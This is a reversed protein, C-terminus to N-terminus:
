NIPGCGLWLGPLLQWHRLRSRRHEPPPRSSILQHRTKLPQSTPCLLSPILSLVFCTGSRRRTLLSGDLLPLRIYDPLQLSRQAANAQHASLIQHHQKCHSRTYDITVSLCGDAGGQLRSAVHCHCRIQPQPILRGTRDIGRSILVNYECHYPTSVSSCREM